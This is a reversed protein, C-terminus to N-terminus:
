AGGTKNHASDSVSYVATRACFSDVAWPWSQGPAGFVGLETPPRGDARAPLRLSQLAGTSPCLTAVLGGPGTAVRLGVGEGEVKARPSSTMRVSFSLPPLLIVVGIGVSHCVLTYLPPIARPYAVELATEYRPVEAHPNGFLLLYGTAEAPALFALRCRREGLTWDCRRKLFLPV